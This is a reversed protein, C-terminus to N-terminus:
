SRVEGRQDHTDMARHAPVSLSETSVILYLVAGTVVAAEASTLPVATGVCGCLLEGRGLMIRVVHYAAFVALAITAAILCTRRHWGLLICTGLAAEILGQSVALSWSVGSESSLGKAVGALVFIAGVVVFAFVQRRSPEAQPGAADPLASSTSSIREGGTM